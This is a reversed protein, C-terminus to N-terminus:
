IWRRVKETYSAYAEGFIDRLQQEEYPIRVLSMFGWFGVPAILMPWSGLWWAIALLMVVIGLYMPNRSFRFPGTTVLSSARDTPLAPTGSQRFLWWAWMMMIFGLTFAMVGCARCSFDLRYEKPLAFHLAVSVAILLGAIQPPKVTALKM